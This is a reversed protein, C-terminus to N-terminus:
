SLPSIFDFAVSGYVNDTVAGVFDTYGPKQIQDGGPLVEKQLITAGPIKQYDMVPFIDLYEKGTLSLHNTGDGRHHNKLGESNYAVEMNDNRISYMRVSTFYDPRQFTFYETQWFYKSYSLTVQEIGDERIRIIEELDDKRYDTAEVLKRPISTGLAHITGPRAISRNKDGADFFKGFVLNKSIGDLYYDVLIEVKDESFAYQTGTTYVTWEVFSDAYGLGYSATNNVRDVRHHFSFDRQLGRSGTSFKIEGEIVKLVAEFEEKERLFLLKKALIGAIKIRDGTPRAGSANLHARGIIPQTGKVLQDPLEEGILQMVAVFNNPTGIQNYWWNDCFYDNQVWHDLAATIAQKVKESNRFKSDPHRYAKALTVMNGTHFYNEVGTRSVDQYNIGPWTGNPNQTTLLDEIAADNIASVLYETVVRERVLDFDSPASLAFSVSSVLFFLASGLLPIRCYSFTNKRALATLCIM